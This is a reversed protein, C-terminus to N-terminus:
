FAELIRKMAHRDRPRDPTGANILGDNNCLYMAQTGGGRVADIQQVQLIEHRERDILILDFM